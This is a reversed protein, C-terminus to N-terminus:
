AAEAAESAPLAATYAARTLEDRRDVAWAPKPISAADGVARSSSFLADLWGLRALSDAYSYPYCFSFFLTDDAPTDAAAGDIAM